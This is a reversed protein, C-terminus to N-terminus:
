LVTHRSRVALACTTASWNGSPRSIYAQVSASMKWLRTLLSHWCVGDRESAM